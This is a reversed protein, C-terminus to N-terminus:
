FCLGLSLGLTTDKWVDKVEIIKDLTKLTAQTPLIGWLGINFNELILDVEARLSLLSDLIEGGEFEFKVQDKFNTYGHYFVALGVQARLVYFDLAFNASIDGFFTTIEGFTPFLTANVSLITLKLNAYAGYKFSSFDISEKNIISNITYGNTATAGTGFSFSKAFIVTPVIVLILAIILVKKM